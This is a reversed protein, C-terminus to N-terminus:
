KKKGKGGDLSPPPPSLTTGLVLNAAKATHLPTVSSEASVAEVLREDTDKSGLTNGEAPIFISGWSDTYASKVLYLARM